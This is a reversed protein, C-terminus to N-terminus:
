PRSNIAVRLENFVKQVGIKCVDVWGQHNKVFREELSIESGPLM